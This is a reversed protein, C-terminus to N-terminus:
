MVMLRCKSSLKLVDGDSIEREEGPAVPKDNLWTGNTEALNKMLWIGNQRFIQIHDRSVTPFDQLYNSGVANRGVISGDEVKLEYRDEILLKITHKKPASLPEQQDEDLPSCIESVASAVNEGVAQLTSEEVLPSRNISEECKECRRATSPNHHGCRCLKIMRSM